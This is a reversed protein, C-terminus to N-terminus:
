NEEKPLGVSPANSDEGPSTARKKASRVRVTRASNKVSVAGPFHSAPRQTAVPDSDVVEYRDPHREVWLPPVDVEHLPGGPVASRVRIYEAVIM